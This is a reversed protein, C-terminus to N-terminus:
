GKIAALYGLKIAPEAATDSRVSAMFALIQNARTLQQRAVRAQPPDYVDPVGNAAADRRRQTEVNSVYTAQRPAVVDAPAVDGVKLAVQGTFPLPAVLLITGALLALLWIASVRLRNAPPIDRSTVRHGARRARLEGNPAEDAM